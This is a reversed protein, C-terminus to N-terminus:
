SVLLTVAVHEADPRDVLALECSPSDWTESAAQRVESRAHQVGIGGERLWRDIRQQTSEIVSAKLLDVEWVRRTLMATEYDALAQDVAQRLLFDDYWQHAVEWAAAAELERSTLVGSMDVSVEEAVTGIAGAPAPTEDVEVHAVPEVLPSGGEEPASQPAGVLIWAGICGAAWLLSCIVASM